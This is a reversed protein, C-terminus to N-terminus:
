SNFIIILNANELQLFCEHFILHSDYDHHNIFREYTSHGHTETNSAAPSVLYMFQDKNELCCIQLFLVSILFVTYVLEKDSSGSNYMYYSHAIWLLFLDNTM